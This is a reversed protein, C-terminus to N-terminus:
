WLSPSWSFENRKSKTLLCYVIYTNQKAQKNRWTNKSLASHILCFVISWIWIEKWKSGDHPCKICQLFLGLSTMIESTRSGRWTLSQMAAGKLTLLDPLPVLLYMELWAPYFLSQKQIITQSNRDTREPRFLFSKVKLLLSFLVDTCNECFLNMRHQFFM